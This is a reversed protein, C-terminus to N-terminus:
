LGAQALQKILKKQAATLKKPIDVAIQVLIDGRAEGPGLPL